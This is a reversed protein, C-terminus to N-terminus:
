LCKANPTILLQGLIIVWEQLPQCVLSSPYKQFHPIKEGSFASKRFRDGTHNKKKKFALKGNEYPLFEFVIIDCMMSRMAQLAHLRTHVRIKEFITLFTEM